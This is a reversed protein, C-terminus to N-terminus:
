RPQVGGAEDPRRHLLGSRGQDAGGLWGPLNSLPFVVGSLFFMPLVFLQMVVQFSEVHQMRSAALVGISTLLAACMAMLFLLELILAPRWPVHALPAVALMIVGQFTAVTAGRLTKV